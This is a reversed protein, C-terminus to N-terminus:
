RLNLTKKMSACRLSLESYMGMQVKLKYLEFIVLQDDFNFYLLGGRGILLGMEKCDELITDFEPKAM